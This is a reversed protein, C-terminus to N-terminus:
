TSLARLLVREIQAVWSEASGSMEGFYLARAFHGLVGAMTTVLLDLDLDQTVVGERLGQQLLSRTLGIISCRRLSPDVRPWFRRIGEYVYLFADLSEDIFAANRQLLARLNDAFPRKPQMASALDIALRRYCREFLQLALADKSEFHKFLAPNTCGAEAAVARISTERIGDRVFLRLAAKLMEQKAPAEDAAVFFPLSSGMCMM